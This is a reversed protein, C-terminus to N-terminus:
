SREVMITVYMLHNDLLSSDDSIYYAVETVKFLGFHSLKIKEGVRPVINSKYGVLSGFDQLFVVIETDM